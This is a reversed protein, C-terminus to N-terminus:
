IVPPEFYVVTARWTRRDQAMRYLQTISRGGSIEKINDSFRVKPRGRGRTHYVMGLLLDSTIDKGRLIHGVFAMQRCNVTALLRKSVNMKNLVWDNTKKDTWSIRLLRRYCWLEFAEIKKKDMNKLVLCESGYSAISFVLIHLLRKKTTISISKDEWINTLSVMASRAICLRRRIEKTDDYNNTILTGLYVFEKVNEIIKNNNVIIHDADTTNQNNKVIKMVKTKNSNLALGFQLSSEKVRNVLDQLEDISNAILVVDDAYRLNSITRGGVKVSGVFGDLANKM